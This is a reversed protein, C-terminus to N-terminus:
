CLYLFLGGFSVKKSSMMEKITIMGITSNQSSVIGSLFRALLLVNMNKVSYLLFVVISLAELYILMKIRGFKDAFIGSVLVSIMAGLTYYM